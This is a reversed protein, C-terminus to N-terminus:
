YTEVQAVAEAPGDKDRAIFIYACCVEPSFAEYRNLKDPNVVSRNYCQQLIHRLLRYTAEATQAPTKPKTAGLLIAIGPYIECLSCMAIM